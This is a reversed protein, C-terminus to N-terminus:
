KVIAEYKALAHDRQKYVLGRKVRHRFKHFVISGRLEIVGSDAMTDVIYLKQSARLSKVQELTLAPPQKITRM